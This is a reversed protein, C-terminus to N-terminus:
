TLADSLADPHSLDAVVLDADLASLEDIGYTGTAVLVCRIGNARAAALDRPTDGVVVVSDRHVVGDAAELRKIALAVLESRDHHDSGYAGVDMRLHADLGAAAIKAAAAPRINGTVVTQVAGRVELNRLTAEVGPLVVVAARLEDALEEYALALRELVAPVLSPDDVGAADLIRAAIDPDTRGGFDLRQPTWVVGTVSEVARVFARVGIGPSRMLTGDIDWLVIPPSTPM